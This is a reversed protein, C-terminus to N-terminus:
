YIQLAALCIAYPLSLDCIELYRASQKIKVGWFDKDSVLDYGRRISIEVGKLKDIVVFAAAIDESYNPVMYHPRYGAPNENPELPPIGQAVEYGMHAPKKWEIDTWQMVKEAIIADLARGPKLDETETPIKVTRPIQMEQAAEILSKSAAVCKPCIDSNVDSAYYGHLSCNMIGTKM